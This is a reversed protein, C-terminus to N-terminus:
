QESTQHLLSLLCYIERFGSQLYWFNHLLIDELFRYFLVFNFVTDIYNFKITKFVNGEHLL